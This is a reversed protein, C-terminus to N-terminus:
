GPDKTIFSSKIWSSKKHAFEILQPYWNLFRGEILTSIIIQLSLFPLHGWPYLFKECLWFAEINKKNLVKVRRRRFLTFIKIPVLSNVLNKALYGTLMLVRGQTRVWSPVNHHSITGFWVNKKRRAYVPVPRRLHLM